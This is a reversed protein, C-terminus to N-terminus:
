PNLYMLWRSAHLYILKEYTHSQRGMTFTFRASVALPLTFYSGDLSFTRTAITTALKEPTGTYDFGYGHYKATGWNPILGIRGCWPCATADSRSGPGVMTIAKAMGGLSTSTNM